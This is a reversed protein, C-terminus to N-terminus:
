IIKTSKSEYFNNKEIINYKEIHNIVSEALIDNGEQNLHYDRLGSYTAALNYKESWNEFGVKNDWDDHQVVYEDGLMEKCLVGTEHLWSLTIWKIWPYKKKTFYVVEKFKLLDDRFLDGSKSNDLHPTVGRGSHTFQHVILNVNEPIVIHNLNKIQFYNDYNSGGNGCRLLDYGYDFHEAVKHAWRNKERYENLYLPLNENAHKPPILKNNIKDIDWNDSKLLVDWELGQGWTFSDGSFLIM